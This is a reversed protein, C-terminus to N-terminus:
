CALVTRASITSVPSSGAAMAFAFPNSAMDGSARAAATSSTIAALGASHSRKTPPSSLVRPLSVPKKTPWTMFAVRPLASPLATVARSRSRAPAQGTRGVGEGGHGPRCTGRRRGLRRGHGVQEREAEALPRRHRGVVPRGPLRDGLEVARQDDLVLAADDAGAHGEA